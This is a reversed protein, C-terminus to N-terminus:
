IFKKRPPLNRALEINIVIIPGISGTKPTIKAVISYKLNFLFHSKKKTSLFKLNNSFIDYVWFM